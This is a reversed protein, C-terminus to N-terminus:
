LQRPTVRRSRPASVLRDIMVLLGESKIGVLGPVWQLIPPHEAVSAIEILGNHVKQPCELDLRVVGLRVIIERQHEVILAPQTSRYRM